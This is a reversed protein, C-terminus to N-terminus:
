RAAGRRRRRGHAAVAHAAPAVGAPRRRVVSRVPRGPPDSASRELPAAAGPMLPRRPTAASPRRRRSRWPRMARRPGDWRKRRRQEQVGVAERRGLGRCGARSRRSAASRRRSGLAEARHASRSRGSSNPKRPVLRRRRRSVGGVASGQRQRGAARRRRRRRKRGPRRRDFSPHDTRGAARVPMVIQITAAYCALILHALLSLAMCKRLPRYQGWRTYLLVALGVTFIALGLWFIAMAPQIGAFFELLRDLRPISM